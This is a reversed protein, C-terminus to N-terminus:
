PFPYYMEYMNSNSVAAAVRSQQTTPSAILLWVRKYFLKFRLEPTEWESPFFLLLLHIHGQIKPQKFHFPNIWRNPIELAVETSHPIGGWSGQHFYSPSINGKQPLNNTKHEIEGQNTQLCLFLFSLSSAHLPSNHLSFQPSFVNLFGLLLIKHPFSM